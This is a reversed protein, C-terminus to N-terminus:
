GEIPDIDPDDVTEDPDGEGADALDVTVIRRTEVNHLEGLILEVREDEATIQEILEPDNFPVSPQFDHVILVEQMGGGETFRSYITSEWGVGGTTGNIILDAILEDVHSKAEDETDCSAIM